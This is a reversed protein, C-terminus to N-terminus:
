TKVKELLRGINFLRKEAMAPATFQLGVPLKDKTLGGPISIAPLGALNVPVTFIDELYMQIPDDIKEGLRFAPTPATPTMILDVGDTTFAKDYANILKQRATLARGYYADYYGSSLVFTGLIIRRKVERGLLQGRTELYEELLNDGSIKEGYRLGDFRAMNASVEAPTIIYYCALATKLESLEIERIVVGEKKLKELNDNFIRMVESDVGEDFLSFPVGVILKKKEEEVLPKYFSTSDKTDQGALAEFIIEADAVTKALPGIQDLSSAMAMLGFRSVAGYTPKLGVVGCFSAPQRISGGTDSGLAGLALNGAVACASGGSSGGPVRELDYPNKTPGFSSNETSGGMAFEDMNTRGLFVVGQEKLKSIVTADYPAQYNALMKSASSVIKGKILINDKVALPIGTLVKGQGSALKKDAQDAENLCSDKFVELYCNLEPNKQEIEALYSEVLERASFDGKGLARSVGKIDLHELNIKDAMM